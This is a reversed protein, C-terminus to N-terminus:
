DLLPVATDPPLRDLQDFDEFSAANRCLQVKVLAKGRLVYFKVWDEAGTQDYGPATFQSQLVYSYGGNAFRLQQTESRPGMEHRFFLNQNKASGRITLEPKRAAGYRYVLEDGETSVRVTKAALRCVFSFNPQGVPHALAAGGILAMPLALGLAFRMM